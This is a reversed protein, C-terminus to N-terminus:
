RRDYEVIFDGFYRDNPAPLRIGLEQAADVQIKTLFDGMQKTNLKSSTDYVEVEEGCVLAIRSLFKKCYYLYIDNKGTGTEDEICKMWMWMLDNQSITRKESVRTISVRYRGNRLKSCTYGFDKSLKVEGDHKTLILEEAM